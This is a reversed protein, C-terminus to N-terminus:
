RKKINCSRCLIQYTCVDNHYDVWADEFEEDEKMFRTLNNLKCEGFVIPKILKTENLFNTSITSFSPEVHDVHYKDRPEGESECYNCILKTQNKKFEMTYPSIAERMSRILDEHKTREKFQCCYVWSFDMKTGDLRKIAMQYYKKVMPNPEIIFYNIGVGIKDEYEPHNKILDNFFDFMPKKKYIKCCGLFNIIERTYNECEKKTKFELKGINYIKKVM